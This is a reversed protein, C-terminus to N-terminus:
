ARASAECRACPAAGHLHLAAPAHFTYALGLPNLDRLLDRRVAMFAAGITEGALLRAILKRAIPRAVLDGIEVETGVVGTAGLLRLKDLFGHIREPTLAVSTCGNLFVLGNAPWRSDTRLNASRIYRPEDPGFRLQFAGQSDEGHCFLYFLPYGGEQLWALVRWRDTTVPMPTGAVRQIESAHSGSQDIVSDYGMIIASGDPSIREIATTASFSPQVLEDPVRGDARPQVRQLPQEIQHRLGWFGFPCVTVDRLRKDALPCSKQARCKAPDDLLDVKRRVVRMGDDDNWENAEVQQVFVDCLALDNPRGTDIYEDYLAAWPLSTSELQCRAISVVGPDRLHPAVNAGTFLADFIEYGQRALAVIRAKRWGLNTPDLPAYRGNSGSVANALEKRLLRARETFELSSFTKLHHDAPLAGGSAYVALWHRGDSTDHTQAANTLVTMLPAALDDLLAFDTSAAYDVTTRLPVEALEGRARAELEVLVSQILAGRHFVCARLRLSGSRKPVVRLRVPDSDGVRPLTLAAAELPLEFDQADAFVVVALTVQDHKSFVEALLDESLPQSARAREPATAAIRVVLDYPEGVILPEGWPLPGEAFPYTVLVSTTRARPAPPERRIAALAESRRQALEQRGAAEVVARVAQLDEGFRLGAMGDLAARARQNADAAIRDARQELERAVRGSRSAEARAPPAYASVPYYNEFAGRIIHERALPATRQEAAEAVARTLLLQFEGGRRAAFRIITNSALAGYPSAAAHVCADLPVNHLLKRYFEPFFGQADPRTSDLYVFLVADVGRALADKMVYQAFYFVDSLDLEPIAHLVLLRPPYSISGAWRIIEDATACVKHQVVANSLYGAAWGFAGLKRCHEATFSDFLGDAWDKEMEPPHRVNVRLPLEYASSADSATKPFRRVVCTFPPFDRKVMVSPLATLKWALQHWQDDVLSSSNMISLRRFAGAHRSAALHMRVTELEESDLLYDVGRLEIRPWMSRHLFVDVEVLSEPKSAATVGRGTAVFTPPYERTFTLTARMVGEKNWPPLDLELELLGEFEDRM